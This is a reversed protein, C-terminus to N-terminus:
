FEGKYQQQENSESAGLKKKCKDGHWRNFLGKHVSIGCHECVFQHKELRMPNKDGKAVGERTRTEGLKIKQEELMPVGKNPAVRKVGYMPNNSGSYDPVSDKFKQISKESWGQQWGQELFLPLEDVTVFIQIDNLHVRKKGKVSSGDKRMVLNNRNFSRPDNKADLTVLIEEELHLMEVTTGTDVIERVWEDKCGEVLPKVYKSSCIYGDDVDGTHSGVYWMLTPLHTWKYVFSAQETM